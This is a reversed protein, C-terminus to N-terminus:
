GLSPVITRAFNLREMVPADSFGFLDFQTGAHLSLPVWSPVVFLDGTQPTYETDGLVM